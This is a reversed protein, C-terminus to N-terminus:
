HFFFPLPICPLARNIAGSIANSFQGLVASAIDATLKPALKMVLDVLSRVNFGPIPCLNIPIPGLNITVSTGHISLQDLM